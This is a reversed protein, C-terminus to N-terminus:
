SRNDGQEIDIMVRGMEYHGGIENSTFKLRIQRIQERMDIKGDSTPFTYSGGAVTPGMAFTEGSIDLQLDGKLVFDPEVRVLRTFNNVGPSTEPAGPGGSTLGIDPTEFYSEVASVHEGDVM